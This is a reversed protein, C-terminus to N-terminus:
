HKLYYGNVITSTQTSSKTLKIDNRSHTHYGKIDVHCLTYAINDRTKVCPSVDQCAKLHLVGLLTVISVNGM